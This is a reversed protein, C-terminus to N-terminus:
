FFFFITEIFMAMFEHETPNHFGVKGEERRDIHLDIALSLICWLSSQASTRVLGLYRDSVLRNVLMIYMQVIVSGPVHSDVASM